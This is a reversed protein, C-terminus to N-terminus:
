SWYIQNTTPLDTPVIISVFKYSTAGGQLPWLYIITPKLFHERMRLGLPKKFGYFGIFILHNILQRSQKPGKSNTLGWLDIDLFRTVNFLQLYTPQVGM